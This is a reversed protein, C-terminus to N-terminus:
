EDEDEVDEDEVDADDDEDDANDDGNDGDVSVEIETDDGISEGEEDTTGQFHFTIDEIEDPTEEFYYVVYGDEEGEGTFEGGVADSALVDADIEEDNGDLTIYSNDGYFVAYEDETNEVAVHAVVAGEHDDQDAEHIEVSDIAVSVTGTEATADLDELTEVEESLGQIDHGEDEEDVDEADEEDVDQDEELDEEDEDEEEEDEEEDDGEDEVEAEDTDDIEGNADDEAEEGNCASVVLLASLGFTMLYKKM